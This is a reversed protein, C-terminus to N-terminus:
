IVLKIGEIGELSSFGAYIERGELVLIAIRLSQLNGKSSAKVEYSEIKRGIASEIAESCLGIMKEKAVCIIRFVFVTPFEMLDDFKNEVM